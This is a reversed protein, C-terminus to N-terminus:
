GFGKLHKKSSGLDPVGSVFQGVGIVKSSSKRHCHRAAPNWRSGDAFHEL